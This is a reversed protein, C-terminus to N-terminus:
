LVTPENEAFIKPRTTTEQQFHISEQLTRQVSRLGDDLIRCIPAEHPISEHYVRHRLMIVQDLSKKLADVSTSATVVNLSGDDNEGQRVGTVIGVMGRAIGHVQQPKKMNPANMRSRPMPTPAKSSGIKTLNQESASVRLRGGGSPGGDRMLNEQSQSYASVVTTPKRRLKGQSSITKSMYSPTAAHLSEHDSDSQAQNTLASVSVSRTLLNQPDFIGTNGSRSREEVGSIVLSQPRRHGITETHKASEAVAQELQHHPHCTGNINSLNSMQPSPPNAKGYSGRLSLDQTSQSMSKYGISQLKKKTEELRKELELRSKSMERNKLKVSMILEANKSRVIEYPEQEVKLSSSDKFPHFRKQFSRSVSGDSDTDRDSRPKPRPLQAKKDTTEGDTSKGVDSYFDTSEEDDGDQGGEKYHSQKFNSTVPVELSIGENERDSGVKERPYNETGFSDHSELSSEKPVPPPAVQPKSFPVPVVTDSHYFSKITLAGSSQEVRESWKGQPMSVNPKKPPIPPIPSSSETAPKMQKKAWDPLQGFSFRYDARVPSPPNPTPTPTVPTPTNHVPTISKKRSRKESMRTEMTVVMERSLSWVIICSDGGVSILNQFDPTFGIATALESHGLLSAVVDGKYYDFITISKDTSAVAVYYGSPDLTVKIITGLNVDPVSSRLTKSHKGTAINYVRVCADQCAVLAHKGGIDAELDFLPTKSTIVSSVRVDVEGDYKGEVLQSVDLVQNADKPFMQRIVLSKDAGCSVVHVSHPVTRDSTLIKVSTVSGKHEQLSAIREIEQDILYLNVSGDRSATAVLCGKVDMSLIEEKHAKIKILENTSKSRWLRFNGQRDGCCIFSSGVGVCRVGNGHSIFLPSDLYRTSIYKIDLCEQSLLNTKMQSTIDWARVTDDNSCTLFAPWHLVAGGPLGSAQTPGLALDWICGSHYLWSNSLGVRKIDQVDWAYFSHDAYSAIIKKGGPACIGLVNPFKSSPPHSSLSAIDTAKAVDVGLHHPLPLTAVFDLRGSRFCRVIGDACGIYLLDDDMTMCLAQKTKLQVWKDLFRREDFQCLTASVTGDFNAVAYTGNGDTIVDKFDANSHESGLIAPRGTLVCENKGLQLYWFKLHRTGGTVFYNGDPSFAVCSVKCAVSSSALKRGRNTSSSSGTPTTTPTAGGNGNRSIGNSNALLGKFDWVSVVRDSGVTVLVGLLTSVATCVVNQCPSIDKIVGSQWNIVRLCNSDESAAFLLSNSKLQLASISKRTELVIHTVVTGSGTDLLVITNGAPYAVLGNSDSSFHANSTVSSGLIRDIRIKDDNEEM